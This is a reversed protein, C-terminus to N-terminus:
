VGCVVSFCYNKFLLPMEDDTIFNRDPRISAFNNHKPQALVDFTCCGQIRSLDRSLEEQSYATILFPTKLKAICKLTAPWPDKGDYISSREISPNFACVFDPLIFDESTYYDLYSKKDEFNFLLRRNSTRCQECLKANRLLDLPLNSPNLNPSILVVRLDKVDPRLHLFFREWKILVDAVYQLETGLIHISFKTRQFPKLIYLSAAQSQKANFDPDPISQSVASKFADLHLELAGEQPVGGNRFKFKGSSENKFLAPFLGPDYLIAISEGLFSDDKNQIIGYKEHLNDFPIRKSKCQMTPVNWYVRFPKKYDRPVDEPLEIVYYNSEDDCRVAYRALILFLLFKM